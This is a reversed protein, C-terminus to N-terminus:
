RKKVEVFISLDKDAERWDNLFTDYAKRATAQDGSLACDEIEVAPRWLKGLMIQTLVVFVCKPDLVTNQFHRVVLILPKVPFKPMEEIFVFKRIVFDSHFVPKYSSLNGSSRFPGQVVVADHNM